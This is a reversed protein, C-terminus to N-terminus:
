HDQETNTVFNKPPPPGWLYLSDEPPHDAAPWDFAAPVYDMHASYECFSGWPDEIYSFYNSGLVHRGLGWGQAYGAEQMQMWGLGVEEVGAVEWSSHHWGRRHSKAFAILHHDSGYPAHLFAIIDQSRDSLRLGLVNTYFQLQANVDSAFLLIHSLRTPRVKMVNNRGGSVGRVSPATSQTEGKADITTKPGIRVQVLNGDPDLFWIGDPYLASEHPQVLKANAEIRAALASYEEAFCNLTMYILQKQSSRVVRFWIHASSGATMQLGNVTTEVNLGFSDFFQHAESMGPVGLTFHDISHIALRSPVTMAMGENM